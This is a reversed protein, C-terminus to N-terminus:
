GQAPAMSIKETDNWNQRIIGSLFGFHSLTWSELIKVCMAPDARKGVGTLLVTDRGRATWDWLARSAFCCRLPWKVGRGTGAVGVGGFPVPACFCPKWLENRVYRCMILSSLPMHM